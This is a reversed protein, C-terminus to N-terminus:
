SGNTALRAQALIFENEADVAKDEGFLLRTLGYVKEPYLPINSERYDMERQAKIKPIETWLM